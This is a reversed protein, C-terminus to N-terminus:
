SDECPPPIPSDPDIPEHVVKGVYFYKDSTEYFDIWSDLSEIEADTLGRLDHTLHTEFCGTIYARTADKGSFFSYGGNGKAYYGKIALYIPKNEDSGDYQALEAATFIREGDAPFYKHSLVKLRHIQGGFDFTETTLYSASLIGLVLLVISLLINGLGFGSNSTPKKEKPKPAQKTSEKPTSKTM